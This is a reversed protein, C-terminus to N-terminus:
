NLTPDDPATVMTPAFPSSPSSIAAGPQLPPTGVEVMGARASRAPEVPGTAGNVVEDLVGRFSTRAGVLRSRVDTLGLDDVTRDVAERPQAVAGTVEDRVSASLRRVEALLRGATRAAHPLREPGLVIMAILGVLLIKEPSLDV